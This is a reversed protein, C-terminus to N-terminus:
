FRHCPRSDSGGYDATTVAVSSEIWMRTGNSATLRADGTSSHGRPICRCTAPYITAKLAIAAHRMHGSGMLQTSIM